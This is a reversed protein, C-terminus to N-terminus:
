DLKSYSVLNGTFESEDVEKPFSKSIYEALIVGIAGFWTASTSKMDCEIYKTQGAVLNFEVEEVLNKYPPKIQTCQLTKEGPLVDVIFYENKATRGIEENDLLVPGVQTEFKLTALGSKGSKIYLRTHTDDLVPVATQLKERPAPMTACSSVVLATICLIIFSFKM